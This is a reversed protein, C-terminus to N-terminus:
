ATGIRVAFLAIVYDDRRWVVDCFSLYIEDDASNAIQDIVVELTETRRNGILGKTLAFRVGFDAGITDFVKCM